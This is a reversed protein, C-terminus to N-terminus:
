EKEINRVLEAKQNTLAEWRRVIVDCYVPDLEMTRCIRNTQECAILTSGSGGFPDLVTEAPKSSNRILRALLKIPKMTPHDGDKAPKDERIITTPAKDQMLEKILKKLEDKSMSNLDPKDEIVTDQSRDNIFYHGEGEKWGYLCPEHRWQYDQRGLTFHNKVWILCQKVPLGNGFCAERFAVDEIDGYWIYFSGGRKLCASAAKMASAIFERFEEKGMSDNEITMGQSNSVSM